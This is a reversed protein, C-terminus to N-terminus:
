RWTAFSRPSPLGLTTRQGHGVVTGRGGAGDVWGEGEGGSGGAM